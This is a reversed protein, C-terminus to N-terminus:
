ITGGLPSNVVLEVISCKQPVSYALAWNGPTALQANTPGDFNADWSIGLIHMANNYTVAMATELALINRDTEIQLPFQSGTKVVGSKFLYCVFQQAQGATGRIPMQSDVVVRLGAFWGIDTNTVGIGGGGWTIEGGSTLSDSSFQLMGIQELYGAVSPHMAITDLGNAEESLLYKAQVVNAATLFNDATLAAADTGSVDLANTAALPGAPGLIGTLQFILKQELKRAMDTALQSRINGLADEGTQVQSLDDVSFAAGRNTITCYQTAASQKQTTYYGAGNTGWTASSQVDEETYDM